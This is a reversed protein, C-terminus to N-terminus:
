WLELDSLVFLDHERMHEGFSTRNVDISTWVLWCGMRCMDYFLNCWRSLVENKHYKDVV